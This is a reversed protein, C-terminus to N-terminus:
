DFTWHSKIPGSEYISFWKRKTKTDKLSKELIQLRLEIKVEEQIREAIEKGEKENERLTNLVEQVKDMGVIPVGYLESARLVAEPVKKKDEDTVILAVIEAWLSRFGDEHIIGNGWHKSIVLVRRWMQEMVEQSEIWAIEERSAELADKVENYTYFGCKHNANEPHPAQFDQCRARQPGPLWTYYFYLSELRGLSKPKLDPGWINDWLSRKTPRLYTNLRLVRVGFYPEERKVTCVLYKDPLEETGFIGAMGKVKAMAKILEPSNREFEGFSHFHEAKVKDKLIRVEGYGLGFIIREGDIGFPHSFGWGKCDDKGPFFIEVRPGDKIPWDEDIM